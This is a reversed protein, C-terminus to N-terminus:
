SEKNEPSIGINVRQIGQEKHEDLCWVVLTVKFYKDGAMRITDGKRPLAILYMPFKQGAPTIFHINYKLSNM